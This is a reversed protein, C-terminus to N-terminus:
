DRNENFLQNLDTYAGETGEHQPVMSITVFIKAFDIDFKWLEFQDMETEAYRKMLKLMQVFEEKSMKDEESM